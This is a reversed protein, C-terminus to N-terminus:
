QNNLFGIFAYKNLLFIFIAVGHICYLQPMKM